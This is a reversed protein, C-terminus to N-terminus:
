SMWKFHHVYPFKRFAEMNENNRRNMGESATADDRASYSVTQSGDRGAAYDRGQIGTQGSTNRRNRGETATADDTAGYSVTQSGDSSARLLANNALDSIDRM